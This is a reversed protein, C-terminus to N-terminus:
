RNLVIQGDSEIHGTHLICQADLDDFRRVEAGTAKVTVPDFVRFFTVSRGVYKGRQRMKRLGILDQDSLRREKTLLLKVGTPVPEVM